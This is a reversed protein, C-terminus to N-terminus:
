QSPKQNANHNFIYRTQQHYVEGPRLLASPFEPRNPADPWVQAEMAIGAHQGYDRGELGQMGPQPLHNATYVQLGPETTDIQMSLSAAELWAVPRLNTRATSLCLNHDLAVDHLSRPTRFDFDTQAVPTIEGTPILDDDVPLYHDAALRLRHRAISGSDDLIFYGHHAFNCLTSRDCTARIDFGLAMNDLSITLVVDLAGPFGMDGDPLHLSMVVSSPTQATVTWIKQGSGRTGGHLCHRGRFNTSAQFVEGDIDFRGQAIRNACRGVIAGFYQMPGLYPSLNDAGLVLPHAVGEMRLDQVIAGLTLVHATLGGGELRLRHVPQGDSLHGFVESMM